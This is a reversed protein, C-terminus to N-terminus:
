LPQIHFRHWSCRVDVEVKCHWWSPYCNYLPSILDKFDVEGLTYQAGGQIQIYWYPNPVYETKAEQASVSLAGSLMLCSLLINKIKM